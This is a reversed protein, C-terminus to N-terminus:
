ILIEKMEINIQESIKGKALEKGILKKELSEKIESAIELAVDGELLGLEFEDLLDSIDEKKIIIKGTVATKIQEFVGLKIKREKEKNEEFEQEQKLDEGLKGLSKELRIEEKEIEKKLEATEKEKKPRVTSKIIDFIGKKGETKPKEIEKKFSTEKIIKHSKKEKSELKKDETKIKKESTEVQLKEKKIVAKSEIKKDKIGEKKNEIPTLPLEDEKKTLKGVFDSIKKKLLGFM